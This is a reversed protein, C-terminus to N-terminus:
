YLHLVFAVRHLGATPRRRCKGIESIKNKNKKNKAKERKGQIMTWGIYRILERAFFSVITM